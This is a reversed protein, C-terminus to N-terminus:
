FIIYIHDEVAIFLFMQKSFQILHLLIYDLLLFYLLLRVSSNKLIIKKFIECFECSFLQALTELKLAAQLNILYSAGACTNEQSNQLVKLFM